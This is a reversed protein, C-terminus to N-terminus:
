TKKFVLFIEEGLVRKSIRLYEMLGFWPETSRATWLSLRTNGLDPTLLVEVKIGAGGEGDDPLGSALDFQQHLRDQNSKLIEKDIEEDDRTM